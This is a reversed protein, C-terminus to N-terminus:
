GILLCSDYKSSRPTHLPSDDGVARYNNRGRTMRGGLISESIEDRALLVVGPTPTDDEHELANRGLQGEM